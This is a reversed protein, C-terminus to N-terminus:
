RRKSKMPGKGKKDKKKEDAPGAASAASAAASVTPGKGKKKADSASQVVDRHCVEKSSRLSERFLEALEVSSIEKVVPLKVIAFTSSIAKKGEKLGRGVNDQLELKRYSAGAAGNIDIRFYEKPSLFWEDATSDPLKITLESESESESELTSTSTSELEGIFAKIDKTLEELCLNQRFISKYKSNKVAQKGIQGELVAPILLSDALSVIRSYWLRELDDPLEGQVKSVGSQFQFIGHEALVGYHQAMGAEQAAKAQDVPNAFMSGRMGSMQTYREATLRPNIVHKRIQEFDEKTPVTCIETGAASRAFLTDVVEIQWTPNEGDTVYARFIPSGSSGPQACGGDTRQYRVPYEGESSLKELICIEHVNQEPLFNYEVYFYLIDSQLSEEEQMKEFTEDSINEPRCGWLGALSEKTTKPTPMRLCPHDSNVNVIMVDPTNSVPRHFSEAVDTNVCNGKFDYFTALELFDPSPIVHANSVFWRTHQFYGSGVRSPLRITVLAPLVKETVAENFDILQQFHVDIRTRMSEEGSQIIERAVAEAADRDFEDM